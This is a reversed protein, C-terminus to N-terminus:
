ISNRINKKKRLKHENVNSTTSRVLRASIETELKRVNGDKRGALVFGTALLVRSPGSRQALSCYDICCTLLTAQM